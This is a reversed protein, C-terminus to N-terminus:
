PKEALIAMTRSFASSSEPYEVNRMKGTERDLLVMHGRADANLLSRMAQYEGFMLTSFHAIAPERTLRQVCTADNCLGVLEIAGSHNQQAAQNWFDVDTQFRSGHIVFIVLHRSGLPLMSIPHGDRDYGVLFRPAQPVDASTAIKTEHRRLERVDQLDLRALFVALLLLALCLFWDFFRMSSFWQAPSSRAQEM